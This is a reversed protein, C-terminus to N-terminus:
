AIEKLSDAEKDVLSLYIREECNKTYGTICYDCCKRELPILVGCRICPHVILTEKAAEFARKSVPKDGSYPSVEDRVNALYSPYVHLMRSLESLTYEGSRLMHRIVAAQAQNYRRRKTRRKKVTYLGKMELYRRLAKHSVGIMNAARTMSTGDLYLREGEKLVEPKIV